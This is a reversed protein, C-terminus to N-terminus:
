AQTNKRQNVFLLM